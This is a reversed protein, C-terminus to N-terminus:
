IEIALCRTPRIVITSKPLKDLDLRPERLGFHLPVVARARAEVAVRLCDSVTSHGLPKALASEEDSFSVEHMLLDCGEALRVLRENYSTDGTYVLCRKTEREEVRVAVSPVTHFAEAFEIRFWSLEVAGGPEVSVFDLYREYSSVSAAKLMQVLSDLTGRLGVVMFRTGMVKAFQVLTPLGLVHDGHSHSLVVAKVRELATFGCEFMSRLTGEGADLLIAEGGNGGTVLISAHGYRPNSVWGGYGLLVARM